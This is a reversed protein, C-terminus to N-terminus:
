SYYLSMNEVFFAATNVFHSLVSWTVCVVLTKLLWDSLCTFHVHFLVISKSSWDSNCTFSFLFEPLWNSFVHLLDKPVWVSLCM